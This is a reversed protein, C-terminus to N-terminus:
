AVWRISNPAVIACRDGRSLGATRLFARAEATLALVETGTVSVVGDARAERLVPQGAARHLNEFIRELFNVAYGDGRKDDSNLANGSRIGRTRVCRHARAARSFAAAFVG